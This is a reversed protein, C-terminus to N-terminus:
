GLRPSTLAALSELKHHREDLGVQRFFDAMSAFYGYDPAFQSVFAMDELEPCEAVFQMYEHEAHDEFEANLRYSWAPKVVFLVVSVQYVLMALVQPVVRYWLISERVKSRRIQEEIILLHWQENDQQHRSEEVRRFVRRARQPWPHTHTLAIYGVREWAQYPVRAVVELVRFKSLSRRRGYFLDLSAFLARSLLSYHLRPSTLTEEQALRLVAAPDDNYATLAM